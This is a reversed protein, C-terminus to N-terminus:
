LPERLLIGMFTRYVAGLSLPNEDTLDYGGSPLIQSEASARNLITEHLLAKEMRVSPPEDKRPTGWGITAYFDRSSDAVLIMDEVQTNGEYASLIPCGRCIRSRRKGNQYNNWCTRNYHCSALREMLLQWKEDQEKRAELSVHEVDRPSWLAFDPQTLRDRLAHYTDRVTRPTTNLREACDNIPEGNCFGKIIDRTVEFPQKAHRRLINPIKEESM